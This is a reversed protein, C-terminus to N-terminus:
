YALSQLDQRRPPNAFAIQESSLMHNIVAAVEEEDDALGSVAAVVDLLTLAKGDELRTEM